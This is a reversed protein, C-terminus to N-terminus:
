RDLGNGATGKTAQMSSFSATGTIHVAQGDSLKTFGETVIKDGARVGRLVEVNEQPLVATTINRRHAINDVGTTFIYEGQQDNQLIARQIVLANRNEGAEIFLKAYFGPILHRNQNTFVGRVAVTGSTQNLQHDIFDLVGSEGPVSDGQIAAQVATKGVNKSIDKHMAIQQKRIQIAENEGISANVYIPSIQMITALVTGGATAGVYNGPDVQRRGVVGDFPARVETYNLNTKAIDVNAEAQQLNSLSIEVNTQSNANEKLLETQRAYDSKCQDLRAQNLKLQDQYPPQEITFLLQGKKVWEGDKFHVSDLNGAVRAILNVQQSPAVTGDLEVVDKISSTELTAVTVDVAPHVATAGTQGKCAFLLCSLTIILLPMRMIKTLAQQPTLLNM